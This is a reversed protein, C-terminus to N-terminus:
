PFPSLEERDSLAGKGVIFRERLFVVRKGFRFHDSAAPLPMLFLIPALFVIETRGDDCGIIDQVDRIRNATLDEGARNGAPREFDNRLLKLEVAFRADRKGASTGILTM